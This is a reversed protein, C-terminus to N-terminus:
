TPEERVQCNNCVPVSVTSGDLLCAWRQGTIKGCPGRKIDHLRLRCPPFNPHFLYPDGPDRTYNPLDPPPDGRVHFAIDGNDLRTYRM